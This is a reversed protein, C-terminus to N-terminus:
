IVSSFPTLEDEETLEPQGGRKVFAAFGFPLSEAEGSEDVGDASDPIEGNEVLVCEVSAIEIPPVTLVCPRGDHATGVLSYGTIVDCMEAGSNTACPERWHEGGDTSCKGKAIHTKVSFVAFPRGDALTVRFTRAMPPMVGQKVFMDMGNSARNFWEAWPVM